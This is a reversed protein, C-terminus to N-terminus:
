SGPLVKRKCASLANGYIREPFNCCSGTFGSKVRCSVKRVATALVRPWYQVTLVGVAAGRYAFMAEESRQFLM